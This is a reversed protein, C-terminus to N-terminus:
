PYESTNEQWPLPRIQRGIRKRFILKHDGPSYYDDVMAVVSYGRDDYFRRARSYGPKSSTEVLVMRGSDAGMRGEASSLLMKGTGQGQLSPDVAIWYIDWTGRTMPSPGYCIYGAVGDEAEAVLVHYGSSVSQALYSEILERAVTMEEPTFQSTRELLDFVM